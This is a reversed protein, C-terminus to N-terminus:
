RDQDHYDKILIEKIVINEHKSELSIAITISNYANQFCVKADLHKGQRDFEIAKQVNELCEKQLQEVKNM